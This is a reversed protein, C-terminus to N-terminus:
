TLLEDKQKDDTNEYEKKIKKWTNSQNKIKEIIKNITDITKKVQDKDIKENKM